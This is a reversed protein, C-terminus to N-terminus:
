SKKVDWVIASNDVSGSVLYRGDKSWSLDAVDGLHGRLFSITFLFSIIFNQFFKLSYRNLDSAM